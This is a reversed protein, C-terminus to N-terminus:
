KTIYRKEIKTYQWVLGFVGPICALFLLVASAISFIRNIGDMCSLIGCGWYPISYAKWMLACAHNYGSIDSVKEPDIKTGAWFHIPKNSKDAWVGIGFFLLGCGFCCVSMIILGALNDM